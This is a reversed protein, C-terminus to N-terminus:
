YRSRTSTLQTAWHERITCLHVCKCAIGVLVFLLISYLLRCSGHCCIQWTTCSCCVGCVTLPTPESTCLIQVLSIKLNPVSITGDRCLRPCGSIHNLQSSVTEHKPQLHVSFQLQGNTQILIRVGYLQVCASMDNLKSSGAAHQPQLHVSLQFQGDLSCLRHDVRHHLRDGRVGGQRAAQAGGDAQGVHQDM